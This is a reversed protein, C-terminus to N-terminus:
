FACRQVEQTNNQPNFLVDKSRKHTIKCTVHIYCHLVVKSKSLCTVLLGMQLHISM